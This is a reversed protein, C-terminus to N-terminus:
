KTSMSFPTLDFGTCFLRVLCGPSIKAAFLRLEAVLQSRLFKGPHRYASSSREAPKSKSKVGKVKGPPAQGTPFPTPTQPFPAVGREGLPTGRNKRLRLHFAGIYEINGYYDIQSAIIYAPDLITLLHCPINTIVEYHPYGAKYYVLVVKYNHLRNNIFDIAESLTMILLATSFAETYAGGSGIVSALVIGQQVGNAPMNIPWGTRPDFIHSYIIGDVTFSHDVDGSTSLDSSSTLVTLFATDYNTGPRPKGIRVSFDFIDEDARVYDLGYLMSVSSSGCSFVGFRFGERTIVERVLDAAYGKVIAGFGIQAQYTVGNVIVPPIMKTLTYGSDEDGSLVIGNFDVLNVFAQIYEVDPLMGRAPRDYPMVPIYVIARFRSTFGWLDVLPYVSPDFLGGTDEHKRQSIEVVRAMHLSIEMSEGYQLKNFRAVDSTEINPSFIADLEGLIERTQIWVREFRAIYIEQDFDAYLRLFSVTGLYSGTQRTRATFGSTDTPQTANCGIFFFLAMM